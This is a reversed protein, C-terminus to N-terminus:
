ARAAGVRSLVARFKGTREREDRGLEAHRSVEIRASPGVLARLGALARERAPAFAAEDVTVLRLEFRDLAQQVLQYQLVTRDDKFAAWIARPHLTEGSPLPLMDELRGEVESLLRQSRGCVCPGPLLAAVDGMPYNLLVSARNVLNSIVIEGREGPAAESGDPRLIRVHCLDDHLHFGAGEECFYGIKFAEVACYRSLV